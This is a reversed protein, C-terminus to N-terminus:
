IKRMSENFFTFNGKLDVEHYGEEMNEIINRYKEESERMAQEARRHDTVDRVNMVFGTVSSDKLLSKGVGELVRESGDKHRVRFANPVLTGETVIAKGFDHIARQFDDPVILDLSSKGILEEPKLGLIHDVSPSAYTITGKKDVVLIIDAANETIARFYEERERLADEAKKKDTVDRIIGRFGIVQDKSKVLSVSGEVAIRTGDKRIFEWGTHKSPIGTRYVENYAKFVNKADLEGMYKRYNTGILESEEYGLIKVMSSSVFTFNGKLDVEHYGEEITSLINRYKEESEHLVEEARKQEAQKQETIDTIVSRYYDFKGEGDIVATTGIQADFLSGDRKVLRLECTQKNRTEHTKQLHSQFISFYEPVVFRRFPQKAISRKEAGLLSAGTVNAEIIHGKRDFTFYGVPAFDYLDSYRYRAEETEVQSKRLAENQMEPEIQHVHLEHVLKQIEPSSMELTSDTSKPIKKEARKRLDDAHKTKSINKTM